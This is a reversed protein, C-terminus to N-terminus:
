CVQLHYLFHPTSGDLPIQVPQLHPSIPVEHLEILLVSFNQLHICVAGHVFILQFYYFVPIDSYSLHSPGEFSM